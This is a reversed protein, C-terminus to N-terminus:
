SLLDSKYFEVESPLLFSSTKDTGIVAYGHEIFERSLYTGVFGGVGFILAKEM